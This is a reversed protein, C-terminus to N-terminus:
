SNIDKEYIGRDITLIIAYMKKLFIIGCYKNFNQNVIWLQYFLISNLVKKRSVIVGFQVMTRM